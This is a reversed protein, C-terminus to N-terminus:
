KEVDLLAVRERVLAALDGDVADLEAGSVDFFERVREPDYEGLTAAPSLASLSAVAEAAARESDTPEHGRETPREPREGDGPPAAVLVVVVVLSGTVALLTKLYRGLGSRDDGPPRM